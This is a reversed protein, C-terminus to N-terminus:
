ERRMIMMQHREGFKKQVMDLKALERDKSTNQKVIAENLKKTLNEAEPTEYDALNLYDEQMQLLEKLHKGGNVKMFQIYELMQMVLSSDGEFPQTGKINEVSKECIVVLSDCEKLAEELTKTTDLARDYANQIADIQDVMYDNYDVVDTFSKRKDPNTNMNCSILVTGILALCFASAFKM